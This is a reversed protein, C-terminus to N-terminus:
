RASVRHILTRLELFTQQFTSPAATPKAIVVIDTAPPRDLRRYSERLYRKIRNRVVANGVKKSVAIGLRSPDEVTGETRSMAYLVLTRGATRHGHQQVLLFSSRKRLRQSRGLRQHLGASNV